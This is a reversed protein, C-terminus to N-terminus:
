VRLILFVELGFDDVRVWFLVHVLPTGCFFLVELVMGEPVVDHVCWLGSM